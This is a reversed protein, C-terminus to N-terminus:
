NIDPEDIFSETEDFEYDNNVNDVMGKIDIFKPITLGSPATTRVLKAPDFYDGGYSFQVINGSADSVTGNHQVTLNIMAQILKRNLEGTNATEVATSVLGERGSGAHFAFSMPTLGQSFSEPVFGRDIPDFSGHRTWPLVRKSNSLHSPLQGGVLQNGLMGLLQRVNAKKGKAGSQIMVRLPDLPDLNTELIDGGLSALNDLRNQLKQDYKGARVPDNPRKGMARVLLRAKANILKKKETIEEDHVICSALGISFGYGTFWIDLIHSTDTLFSSTRDSGYKNHIVQIINNPSVGIDKKTITGSILVGNEIRVDAFKKKTRRHYTLDSPLIMSFVGKGSFPEINHIALRKGLTALDDRYTLAENMITYTSTDVTIPDVDQTLLMVASLNDFILGIGPANVQENIICNTEAMVSKLEAIADPDMVVHLNLEDGDFDANKLTTSALPIKITHEPHIRVKMATMSYRHLTPQRNVLVFDGNRLHRYLIDGIEPTYKRRSDLTFKKLFGKHNGSGKIYWEIKGAKILSKAEGINTSNIKFPQILIKVFAQPVGVEGFDLEPGPAAVTRAVLNVRSGTTDKRFFGGKTGLIETLGASKANGVKSEQSEILSWLQKALKNYAERYDNAAGKEGKSVKKEFVGLKNNTSVIEKYKSTIYDPMTSGNKVYNDRVCLPPVLLVRFILDAPVVGPSFGLLSPAEPDKIPIMLFVEYVRRISMESTKKIKKKLNVAKKGKTGTKRTETAETPIEFIVRTEANSPAPLFKPNKTCTQNGEFFRSKKGQQPLGKTLSLTFSSKKEDGKESIKTIAVERESTIPRSCSVKESVISIKKLREVGKFKLIGMKEMAEKTLLLTGCSICVSKLVQIIQTFFSKNYFLDNLEIRGYHGSCQDFYKNCHSCQAGITTTGMEPDNVSQSGKYDSNTIDVVSIRRKEDDSLIKLIMKSPIGSPLDVELEQRLLDSVSRQAEDNMSTYIANDDPISDIYTKGPELGQKPSSSTGLLVTNKYKGRVRRGRPIRRSSLKRSPLGNDLDLNDITLNGVNFTKPHNDTGINITRVGKVSRGRRGPGRKSSSSALSQNSISFMSM